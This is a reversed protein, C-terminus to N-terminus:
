KSSWESRKPLTRPMPYYPMLPVKLSHLVHRLIAPIGGPPTRGPLTDRYSRILLSIDDDSPCEEKALLSAVKEAQGRYRYGRRSPWPTGAHAKYKRSGMFM